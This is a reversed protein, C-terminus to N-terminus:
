LMDVRSKAHVHSAANSSFNLTNQRRQRKTESKQPCLSNMLCITLLHVRNPVVLVEPHVAVYRLDQM